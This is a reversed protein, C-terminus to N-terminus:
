TSTPRRAARDSGNSCIRLSKVRASPRSRTAVHGVLLVGYERDHQGREDQDPPLQIEAQGLDLLLFLDLLLLRLFVRL